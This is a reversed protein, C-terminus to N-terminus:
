LTLTYIDDNKGTFSAIDMSTKSLDHQCHVGALGVPCYCTFTGDHEECTGGGIFNLFDHVHM